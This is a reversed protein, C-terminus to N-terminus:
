LNMGSMPAFCFENAYENTRIRRKGWLLLDLFHQFNRTQPNSCANQQQHCKDQNHEM